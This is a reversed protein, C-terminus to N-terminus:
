KLTVHNILLELQGSIKGFQFSINVGTGLMAIVLGGLIGIAGTLINFRPKIETDNM